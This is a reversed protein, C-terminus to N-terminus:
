SVAATLEFWFRSGAGPRSEVGVTGGMREVGKEVIALGIGTGPYDEERHLREFVRFIREQHELAIGIGNDEVWVRVRPGAPEASVRVRPARDPPTFKVANGILNHFVQTLAARHGMVKPLPEGLEVEAHRQRLDTELEAMAARAVAAVDVASLPLEERSIRSYALLDQILGDLRRGGEVIRDLHRRGTEDLRDAHEDLLAQGFGRMTRLPGRLDHSVSYSFAELVANRDELEATRQRVKEELLHQAEHVRVAMTNFAGALRGLEDARGVPVRRSYDGAAIAGAADTLQGLPRTLKRSLAWASGLGGVLVIGAVLALRRLFTRAPALIVRLPFEVLVIWPSGPVPRAAALVTAGDARRYEVLERAMGPDALPAPVTRELNTWVDGRRNGFYISAETGVLRSYQDRARPSTAIRRWQVVHGRLVGNVLVPAAVPYILSDGAPAYPGVVASDAPPAIDGLDLRSPIGRATDHTALLVRGELDRLEVSVLGQGRRLAVLARAARVSDAHQLYDRLATDGATTRAAARLQAVSTQLLGAFQDTVNTLRLGAAGIVARRVGTYAAWSVGGIVALLLGCILLPLKRGISWSGPGVPAVPDPSAAAHPPM